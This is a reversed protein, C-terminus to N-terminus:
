PLSPRGDATTVRACGESRHCPEGTRNVNLTPILTGSHGHDGHHGETAHLSFQYPTFVSRMDFRALHRKTKPNTIRTAGLLTDLNSTNQIKTPPQPAFMRRSIRPQKIM